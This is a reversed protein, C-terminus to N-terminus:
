KRKKSQKVALAWKLDSIRDRYTIGELHDFEHLFCRCAYGYFEGEETFECEQGKVFNKQDKYKSTYYAKKGDYQVEFQFQKGFKGDTEKKFIVETILAKM